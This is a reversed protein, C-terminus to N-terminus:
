LNSGNLDDLMCGGDDEPDSADDLDAGAESYPGGGSAPLEDGDFYYPCLHELGKWLEEFVQRTYEHNYRAVRRGYTERFRAVDFGCYALAVDWLDGHISTDFYDLMTYAAEAVSRGLNDVAFVDAGHQILYTLTNRAQAPHETDDRPAWRRHLNEIIIHLCTEGFLNRARVDAGKELLISLGKATVLPNGCYTLLPGEKSPSLEISVPTEVTFYDVSHNLLIRIEEESGFDVGHQILFSCIDPQRNAYFLLSAGFEDHDRLSAQGLRLMERFETIRGEEVLTFVRSGYPIINNIFLRPIVNFTGQRNHYQWTTAHFGQQISRGSSISLFDTPSALFQNVMVTGLLALLANTVSKTEDPGFIGQKDRTARLIYDISNILTAYRLNEDYSPGDVLQREHNFQEAIMGCVSDERSPGHVQEVLQKLMQMIQEGQTTAESIASHVMNRINRSEATLQGMTEHVATTVATQQAVITYQTERIARHTSLEQRVVGLEDRVEFLTDSELAKLHLNLAATHGVVVSGMRIVDKENLFVKIKGWKGGLRSGSDDITLKQLKKAFREMDDSCQKIKATLAEDRREEIIRCRALRELTSQLGRINRQAQGVQGSGDKVSSLIEHVTKVSKLGLTIVAIVSAVAGVAEM